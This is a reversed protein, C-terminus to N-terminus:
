FQRWSAGSLGVVLDWRVSLLGRVWLGPVIAPHASPWETIVRAGRVNRLDRSVVWSVGLRGLVAGRGDLLCGRRGMLAGLSDVSFGMLSVVFRFNSDDVGFIGLQGRLLGVPGSSAVSSRLLGGLDECSAGLCFYFPTPPHPTLRYIWTWFHRTAPPLNPTLGLLMM